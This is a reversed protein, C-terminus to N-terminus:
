LSFIEIVHDYCDIGRIMWGAGVQWFTVAGYNMYNDAAIQNARVETMNRWIKM